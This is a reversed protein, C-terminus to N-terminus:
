IFKRESFYITVMSVAIRVRMRSRSGGRRWGGIRWWRGRGVGRDELWRLGGVITLVMNSCSSICTFSFLYKQKLKTQLLHFCYKPYPDATMYNKKIRICCERIRIMLLLFFIRALFIALNPQRSPM